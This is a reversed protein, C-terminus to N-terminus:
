IDRIESGWEISIKLNAKSEGKIICATLGTSGLNIGIGFQISARDPSVEKIIVGIKKSLLKISELVPDLNLNDIIGVDTDESENSVELLVVQDDSIKVPIKKYFSNVNQM